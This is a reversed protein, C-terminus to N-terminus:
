ILLAPFFDDGGACFIIESDILFKIQIAECVIKLGIIIVLTKLTFIIVGNSAILYSKKLYRSIDKLIQMKVSIELM